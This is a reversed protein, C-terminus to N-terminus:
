KELVPLPPVSDNPAGAQMTILTMSVLDYYGMIAIIDMIGREGFKDQAAQYVADSVKRDRYLAIGLDYLAAEDDKMGDPRTGKAIADLVKPDLGGKLALPHHAFWEYQATWHRATILIAMESLRPPLSTNWRLYESLASLKPALDPNRIYARYPPATFKANRPPASILDAWAKQAPSLEEAKLPAFRTIDEARGAQATLALAALIGAKLLRRM